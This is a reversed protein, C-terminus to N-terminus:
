LNLDNIDSIKLKYCDELYNTNEINNKNLDFFTNLDSEAQINLEKNITEIKKAEIPLENETVIQTKFYKELSDYNELNNINNYLVTNNQIIDEINGEINGEINTLTDIKTEMTNNVNINSINQLESLTNVNETLKKINAGECKSVLEKNQKFFLFTPVSRINYLQTIEECEDIDIKLFEINKTNSLYEVHPYVLKCPGCWSATFYMVFCKSDHLIDHLKDDEDLVSINNIKKVM